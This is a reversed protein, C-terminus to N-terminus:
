HRFRSVATQLDASMRALEMVAQQSEAVGATTVEAASAVGTINAAIQGAGAAAEAVNRNMEGTTASQEEVASAITLQYDNIRGIITSIEAIAEVAGATDGQIVQVRRAIDETARATEQALEKVETAVVAFGKGAEGARAAEITANLALLNTQEAISTIVKVVEAIETSSAGLKAVTHTTMGAVDVAQAAVKAAENANHAIEAISAGMEESGAAVTQVNASVQEAAASVVLAQASSEEASSAIHGSTGSLQEAATALSTASMNITAILERLNATAENLSGSMRGLEDTSTVEATATLDGQALEGLVVGVRDISRRIRGAILWAVLVSVLSGGILIAILQTRARQSGQVASEVRADASQSVSKQLGDLDKEMSASIPNVKARTAWYADWDGKRVSVLMGDRQLSIFTRWQAEFRDLSAVQDPKTASGRLKKMATEVMEIDKLYKQHEPASDSKAIFASSLANVRLGMFARRLTAADELSVLAEDRIAVADGQLKQTGQIGVTAILLGSLVSILVATIIKIVVPRNDFFAWVTRRRSNTNESMHDNM